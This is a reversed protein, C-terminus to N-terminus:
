EDPGVERIYPCPPLPIKCAAQVLELFSTSPGINFDKPALKGLLTLFTKHDYLAVRQLYARGGVTHLAELLMDYVNVKKLEAIEAESLDLVECKDITSPIPSSPMDKNALSTGVRVISRFQGVFDQLEDIDPAPTDSAVVSTSPEPVLTSSQKSSASSGAGTSISASAGATPESVPTGICKMEKPALAKIKSLVSKPKSAPKKVVKSSPKKVVKSSAEKPM